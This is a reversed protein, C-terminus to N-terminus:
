LYKQLRRVRGVDEFSMNTLNVFQVSSQFFDSDKKRLGAAEMYKQNGDREKEVKMKEDGIEGGAEVVADWAAGGYVCTNIWEPFNWVLSADKLRRRFEEWSGKEVLHCVPVDTLFGVSTMTPLM